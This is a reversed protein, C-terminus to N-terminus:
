RIVNAAKFGLADTRTRRAGRSATRLASTNHAAIENDDHEINSSKL